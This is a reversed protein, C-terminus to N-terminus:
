ARLGLQVCALESYCFFTKLSNKPGDGTNKCNLAFDGNCPKCITLKNEGKNLRGSEYLHRHPRFYKYCQSM